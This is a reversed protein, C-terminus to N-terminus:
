FSAISNYLKGPCGCKDFGVQGDSYYKKFVESPTYVELIEDVGNLQRWELCKLNKISFNNSQFSHISRSYKFDNSFSVQRLMKEARVADFDQM